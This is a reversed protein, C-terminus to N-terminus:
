NQKSKECIYKFDCDSCKDKSPMKPFDRHMIKRVENKVEKETKELEDEEIVVNSNSNDDLHHVTARQPNLDLSNLAAIAYLKLQKEYDTAMESEEKNKFDVIEIGELNGDEDLKKVLDISGSILANGMSFEFEKETNLTLSFDGSFGEAYNKVIDEVNEQFQEEKKDPAYRLYFNNEVIDEIEKETPARNQFRTHIINLINHVARGYGLAMVIKPNFGYIYRLKYDYPCRDYFRLESYSTPFTKLREQLEEETEKRDTPDDVPNELCYKKPVEKFFPSPSKSRSLQPIDECGSLFLYKQSRTLAVYFLRREDELNGQYREKDFLSEDIYWNRASAGSPFRGGVLNPMFVVPFELGKARHITMVKVANIKTPDEQGGEEYQGEGHGKIFGLFYKIDRVKIKGKVTVFDTIAQSLKGLNYLQAETFEGGSSRMYNILRFYEEQLFIYDDEEFTEKEIELNEFFKEFEGNFESSYLNRLIEENTNDEYDFGAIYAMSHIALNVINQNFLEGAGKVIYPIDNERLADIFERGSTRVSRFFIAFDRYDLTFTEGKNNTFETGKFEQIKNIIFDIEDDMEDFFVSYMDGEDYSLNGDKYYKMEKELRNSNEKVEESATDIIGETSRFNKELKISDVDKYRESFTLINEVNTGRWQYISQDDDGVVCLNGDEGSILRILEEQLPNIDQYEDVTIYQYRSRVEEFFEEDNKMLKVVKYIMSSFDLYRNEELLEEYREYAEKFDGSLNDPDIMEQRVVDTSRTFKEITRYKRDDFHHLKSNWYNDSLFLIRKHEDLPEYGRYKPKLDRLLDFCFSHITGIFMEGIDSNEPCLDELHDRIRLKLEEAAKETFTFALINRPKTGHGVIEAIRRSIVETKGSGACAIIQLNGETKNIAGEQPDTYDIGM